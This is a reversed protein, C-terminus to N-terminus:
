NEPREMRWCRWGGLVALSDEIGFLSRLVRWAGAGGGTSCLSLITSELSLNLISFAGASALRGDIGFITRLFSWTGASGGALFILVPTLELGSECSAGHVRWPTCGGLIALPSAIWTLFECPPVALDNRCARDVFLTLSAVRSNM